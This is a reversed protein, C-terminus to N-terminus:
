IVKEGVILRVNGGSNLIEKAVFKMNELNQQNFPLVWHSGLEQEAGIKKLERWIKVRLSSKNLPIDFSLIIKKTM